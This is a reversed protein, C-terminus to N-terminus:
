ISNRRKRLFSIDEQSLVDKPVYILHTNTIYLLFELRTEKIKKIQKWTYTGEGYGSKIHLDAEGFSIAYSLKGKQQEYKKLIARRYLYLSVSIVAVIAIAIPRMLLAGVVIPIIIALLYFKTLPGLTYIWVAQERRLCRKKTMEIYIERISADDDILKEKADLMVTETEKGKESSGEFWDGKLRDYVGELIQQMEKPVKEKDLLLAPRSGVQIMDYHPEIKICHIKEWALKEEGNQWQYTLAKETFSVSTEEGVRAYYAYVEKAIKQSQYALVM